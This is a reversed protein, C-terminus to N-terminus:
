FLVRHFGGSATTRLQEALFTNKFNKCIECSLMQTATKKIFNCAQHGTVKNLLSDLVPTKM